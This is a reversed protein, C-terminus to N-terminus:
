QRKEELEKQARNWGNLWGERGDSGDEYVCESRDVGELGDEYGEQAFMCREAPATYRQVRELHHYLQAREETGLSNAIARALFTSDHKGLELILSATPIILTTAM